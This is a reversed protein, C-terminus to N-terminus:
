HTNTTVRASSPKVVKGAVFAFLGIIVGSILGVIPGVIGMMLKPSNPLPMSNMMAAERAHGALYKDFLFIHAATIWVTQWAWSCAMFFICDPRRSAIVCACFLFTLLWCAPEINSPIFFVTCIGM